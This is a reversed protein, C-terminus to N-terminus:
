ELVDSYTKSILAVDYRLQTANDGASSQSGEGQKRSSDV